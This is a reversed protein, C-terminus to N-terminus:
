RAVLAMNTTVSEGAFWKEPTKMVYRQETRLLGDKPVMSLAETTLVRPGSEVRVSKKFLIEGESLRITASDASIETLVTAGDRLKVVVPEMIISAIKQGPFSPLAQKAFVGKYSVGSDPLSAPLTLIPLSSTDSATPGEQKVRKGYIDLTAKTFRAVNMLGFRLFGIKKKEIQFREAHLSLIRRGEHYGEYQFGEIAHRPEPYTRRPTKETVAPKEPTRYQLYLFVAGGLCTLLVFFVIKDRKSIM